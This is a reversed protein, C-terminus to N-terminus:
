VKRDPYIEYGSAIPSSAGFFVHGNTDPIGVLPCWVFFTGDNGTLEPYGTYAYYDDVGDFSFVRGNQAPVIAANGGATWIRGTVLDVPGTAPNWLIRIGKALGAYDIPAVHQPQRVFRNRLILSTM